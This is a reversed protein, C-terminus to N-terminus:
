STLVRDRMAAHAASEHVDREKVASGNAAGKAVEGPSLMAAFSGFGISRGDGLGFKQSREVALQLFDFDIDEPDYAIEVTLKWADFKPRCRWVRGSGVGANVVRATYRFGAEWLADQDRPGDYEVPIREEIVILSRRVDEGRRWKTAAQRLMEKVNKGPLYPGLDEDLYLALQWNMERLRAEDDLSKSRKQGLMAYARALEGDPDYDSSNMLLPATGTIQLIARAYGAPVVRRFWMGM